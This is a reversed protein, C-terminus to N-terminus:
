KISYTALVVIKNLFNSMSIRLAKIPGKKAANVIEINTSVMCNKQSYMSSKTPFPNSVNIMKFNTPSTDILMNVVAMGKANSKEEIMVNPFKPSLKSSMAMLDAPIGNIRKIRGSKIKAINRAPIAKKNAL